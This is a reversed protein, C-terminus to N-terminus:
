IKIEFGFAEGIVKTLGLGIFIGALLTLLLAGVAGGTGMSQLSNNVNVLADALTPLVYGIAVVGVITFILALIKSIGIEAM